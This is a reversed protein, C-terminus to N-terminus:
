GPSGGLPFYRPPNAPPFCSQDRQLVDARTRQPKPSQRPNRTQRALTPPRLPEINQGTALPRPCAEDTAAPATKLRPTRHQQHDPKM